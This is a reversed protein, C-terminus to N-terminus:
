GNKGTLIIIKNNDKIIKDNEHGAPEWARCLESGGLAELCAQLDDQTAELPRRALREAGQM